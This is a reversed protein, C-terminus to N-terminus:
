SGDPSAALRDCAEVLERLRRAGDAEEEFCVGVLWAAIMALIVAVAYPSLLFRVVSAVHPIMLWAAGVVDSTKPHWIDPATRNDGQVTFGARGTGAHIRHIVQQGQGTQGQPIRYSIIDGPVYRAKAHVIVLDGTHYLPQMSTGNVFVYTADGGFAVPRLEVVWFVGAALALLAAVIRVASRTARGLTQKETEARRRTM